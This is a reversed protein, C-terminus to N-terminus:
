DEDATSAGVGRKWSWRERERAGVGREEIWWASILTLCAVGGCAMWVVSLSTGYAKLALDRIAPEQARIASKSHLIANIIDSKSPTSPLYQRLLHGLIGIQM